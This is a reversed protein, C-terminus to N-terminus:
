RDGDVGRRLLVVGRRRGRSRQRQRAHHRRAILGRRGAGPDEPHRRHASGQLVQHPQRAGPPPSHVRRRESARRRLDRPRGRYIDLSRRHRGHNNGEPLPVLLVCVVGGVLTGDGISWGSGIIDGSIVIIIGECKNHGGQWLAVQRRLLSAQDVTAGTFGLITGDGVSWGSGITKPPGFVHPQTIVVWFRAWRPDDPAWRWNAVVDPSTYAGSGGIQPDFLRTRILADRVGKATGGWIWLEFAQELHAAYDGEEQDPMRELQRDQGIAELAAPSAETPYRQRVAEKLGALLSDKLNGWIRIWGEGFPGRLWAPAKGLQYKLYEDIM